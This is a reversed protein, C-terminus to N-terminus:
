TPLAGLRTAGLFAYNLVKNVGSSQSVTVGFGNGSGGGSLNQFVTASATLTGIVPAGGTIFSVPFISPLSLGSITTVVAAEYNFGGTTWGIAAQVAFVGTAAVDLIGSALDPIFDATTKSTTFPGVGTVAGSVITQNTTKVMYASNLGAAVPTASVPQELFPAFTVEGSDGVSFTQSPFFRGILQGSAAFVSLCALFSGGAGTGDFTATVCQLDIDTGDPLTISGPANGLTESNILAPTVM